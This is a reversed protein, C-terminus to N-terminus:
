IASPYFPYVAIVADANTNKIIAVDTSFLLSKIRKGFFRLEM